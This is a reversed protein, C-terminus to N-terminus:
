PFLQGIQLLMQGVDHAQQFDTFPQGEAQIEGKGDANIQGVDHVDAGEPLPM